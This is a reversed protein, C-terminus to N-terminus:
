KKINFICRKGPTMYCQNCSVCKPKKMDGSKWINILNPECTLPRAMSFYEVKSTNLINEMVDVSRNGGILIVPTEVMEALKVAYDRFYSENDKSVVVKTRAPALNNKIVEKISANGGSVEIADIGMESLKKAVYLSDEQTLGGEAIYDASNLKIWVSFDSGVKERINQYV